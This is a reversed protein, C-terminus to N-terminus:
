KEARRQAFMWELYVPGDIPMIGHGQDPYLTMEVKDGAAKLAQYMVKACEPSVSTDLEGHFLHFATSSINKAQDADGGGAIPAAAAFFTPRRMVAEYTGYGGLSAGSVYIRDPDIQPYQKTLSDILELTLRMPETPTDSLKYYHKDRLQERSGPASGDFWSEGLPCQPALVFCPYKQRNEPRNFYLSGDALQRRNDGGTEGSGHLFLVLPYRTKDDAAQTAAQTAASRTGARRSLAPPKLLRYPLAKGAEDTYTLAAFDDVMRRVPMPPEDDDDTLAALSCYNLVRLTAPMKERHAYLPRFQSTARQAILMPGSISTQSLAILEDAAQDRLAADDGTLNKLAAEMKALFAEDAAKAWTSAPLNELTKQVAPDAFTQPLLLGFRGAMHYSKMGTPAWSWNMAAERDRAPRTRYVNLRWCGKGASADDRISMSDYPLRLEVSWGDPGKALAHEVKPEWKEQGSTLNFYKPYPYYHLRAFEANGQVDLTIQNYPRGLLDAQPEIFIEVGDRAWIAGATVLKDMQPERCRLGIYLADDTCFVYGVTQLKMGMGTFADNMPLVAAKSWAPDSLDGALKAPPALKPAGVFPWRGRYDPKAPASAPHSDQALTISTALVGLSM